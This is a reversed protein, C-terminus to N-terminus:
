KLIPLKATAMVTTKNTLSDVKIEIEPPPNLSNVVEDILNFHCKDM